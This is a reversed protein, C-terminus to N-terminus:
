KKGKWIYNRIINDVCKLTNQPLSPLVMMKYVFLSAVLMNVVQIKGILSINRNYCLNLTNKVKALISNYNKELINEPAIAVGLVQIDNNSWAYQTMNYMSADSHRLSGIRYLTMKDYSVTFGSQSHFSTLEDCIAKISIETCMSFVDMDDACQNLLNRIHRLTIGEIDDNNRLAIAFIEAIVLFYISSCCGGQHVGKGIEIPSSFHGNNQVKVTFGDYLIKTWTKVVQGFYVLSGHLIEFSCKDFCQVFDLSLVVAPLVQKEAQYMIDLLKRINVSIRREKMFGRQYLIYLAPIMKNAIAKEITKYDVNLLTIPRLNKVYRTDKNAKPILTLIGVRATKHLLQKNFCEEVMQFFDRESKVLVCTKYFDVPIGDQGPTKNNNM